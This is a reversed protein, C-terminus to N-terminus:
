SNMIGIIIADSIIMSLSILVCVFRNFALMNKDYESRKWKELEEKKTLEMVAEEEVKNTEKSDTKIEKNDKKSNLDDIYDVVNLEQTSNEQAVKDDEAKTTEMKSKNICSM